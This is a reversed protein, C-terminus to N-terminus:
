KEPNLASRCINTAAIPKTGGFVGSMSIASLADDLAKVEQSTLEIDAAGANEKLREVKRTGPIPM